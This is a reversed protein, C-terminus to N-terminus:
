LYLLGTALAWDLFSKILPRVAQAKDMWRSMGKPLGAGFPNKNKVVGESFRPSMM